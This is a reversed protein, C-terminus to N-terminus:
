FHTPFLVAFNTKWTGQAIAQQTSREQKSFPLLQCREVKLSMRTQLPEPPFVTQKRSLQSCFFAVTMNSVEKGHLKLHEKM